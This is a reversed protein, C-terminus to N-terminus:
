LINIFALVERVIAIVRYGTPLKAGLEKAVNIGTMFNLVKTNYHIVNSAFTHVM